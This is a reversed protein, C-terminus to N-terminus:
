LTYPIANRATLGCAPAPSPCGGKSGIYCGLAAAHEMLCRQSKGNTPSSSSLEASVENATLLNIPVIPKPCNCPQKFVPTPEHHHHSTRNGRQTRNPKKASPVISAQPAAWPFPNAAVVTAFVVAVLAFRMNAQLHVVSISWHQHNDIRHLALISHPCHSKQVIQWAGRPEDGTRGVLECAL